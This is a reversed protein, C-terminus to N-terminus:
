ERDIARDQEKALNHPRAGLLPGRPLPRQPNNNLGARREMREAKQNAFIHFVAIVPGVDHGPATGSHSRQRGQHVLIGQAQAGLYGQGGM